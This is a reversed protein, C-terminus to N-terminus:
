PNPIIAPRCLECMLEDWTVDDPLSEVIQRAAEKVSLAGFEPRPHLLAVAKREGILEVLEESGEWGGALGALGADNSEVISIKKSV